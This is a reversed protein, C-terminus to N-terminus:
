VDFEEQVTNKIEELYELFNSKARWVKTGFTTSAHHNVSVMGKCYFIIKDTCDDTTKNDMLDDLVYSFFTFELISSRSLFVLDNTDIGYCRPIEKFFRKNDFKYKKGIIIKNVSM